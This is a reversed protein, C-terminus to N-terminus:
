VLVMLSHMFTSFTFSDRHVGDLYLPLLPIAGSVRLRLLLQLHTADVECGLWKVGLVWGTHESSSHYQKGRGSMLGWVIWCTAWDAYQSFQGFEMEIHM